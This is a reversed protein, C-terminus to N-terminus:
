KLVELLYKGHGSFHPRWNSIDLEKTPKMNKNLWIAKFPKCFFSHICINKEKKFIFLLPPSKKKFMLGRFKSLPSKCVQVELIQNNFYIKRKKM